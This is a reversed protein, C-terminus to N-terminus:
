VGQLEPLVEAGYKGLIRNLQEIQEPTRPTNDREQRKISAVLAELRNRERPDDIGTANYNEVVDGKVQPSPWLEEAKERPVGFYELPSM